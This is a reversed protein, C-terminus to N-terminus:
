VIRSYIKFGSERNCNFFTNLAKKRISLICSFHLFQWLCKWNAPWSLAILMMFWHLTQNLFTSSFIFFKFNTKTIRNTIKGSLVDIKTLFTWCYCFFHSLFRFSSFKQLFFYSATHRSLSSANVRKAVNSRNIFSYIRHTEPASCNLSRQFFYVHTFVTGFKHSNLM